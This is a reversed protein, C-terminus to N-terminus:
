AEASRQRNIEYLAVSGAVAANLSGVRGCMPLRILYDCKERLLRSIGTGESGVVLVLPRNLDARSYDEAQPVNELGVAWLNAAKMQELTQALNSVIDVRLHEVAGASANVVAPTIEVARRKPLIIGHVGIVEATRLLTGVNQPDQLCDLMLLLPMQGAREASALAQQWPAYPYESAEMAVGQHHGQDGGVLRDLQGREVPVQSAKRAQAAETIEKLSEAAAMNQAVLLRYFRRRNARLSELIANRGYLVEFNPM